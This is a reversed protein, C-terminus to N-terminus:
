LAEFKFQCASAPFPLSGLWMDSPYIDNITIDYVEAQLRLLGNHTVSLLSWSEQQM